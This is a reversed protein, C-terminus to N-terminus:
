YLRFYEAEDKKDLCLTVSGNFIMYMEAFYEGKKIITQNAIFVRCYLQATM